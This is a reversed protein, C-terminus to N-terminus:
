RPRAVVIQVREGTVLHLREITFGLAAVERAVPYRARAPPLGWGALALTGLVRLLPSRPQSHDIVILTGSAGLRDRTRVLAAQRGAPDAAQGLFAIVAAALADGPPGKACRARLARGLRTPGPAIVEVAGDGVPLAAVVTRVLAATSM